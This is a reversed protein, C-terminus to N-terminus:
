GEDGKVKALLAAPLAAFENQLNLESGELTGPEFSNIHRQAARAVRLLADREAEARIARDRWAHVMKREAGDTM